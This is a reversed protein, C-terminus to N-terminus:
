SAHKGAHPAELTSEPVHMTEKSRFHGILALVMRGLAWAGLTWWQQATSAEPFYSLSRILSSSAGPVMHQGIAGWPAVLFQWPMTAGSLPNSVFMTEM